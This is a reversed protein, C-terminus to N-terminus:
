PQFNKSEMNVPIASPLDASTERRVGGLVRVEGESNVKLAPRVTGTMEYTQRVKVTGDPEVVHYTYSRMGFQHLLHLRGSKDIMPEPKSFSVLSGVPFAAFTRTESADTIRVYLRVQKLYSARQLHYKRIESPASEAGPAPPIGFEQSWLRSGNLIEIMLPNASIIEGTGPVTMQASIQFQGPEQLAFHPALNVTFKAREASGIQFEGDIAVDGLKPVVRGHRTELGFIIWDPSTGLKITRGSHNEILVTIPLREAPLFQERDCQLSLTVQALASVGGLWLSLAVVFHCLKM